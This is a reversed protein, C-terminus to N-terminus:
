TTPTFLTPIFYPFNPSKAVVAQIDQVKHELKQFHSLIEFDRPLVEVELISPGPTFTKLDTPDISTNSLSSEFNSRLLNSEFKIGLM